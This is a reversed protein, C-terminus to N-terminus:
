MRGVCESGGGTGGSSAGCGGSAGNTGGTCTTSKIVSSPEATNPARQFPISALSISHRRERVRPGFELGGVIDLRM